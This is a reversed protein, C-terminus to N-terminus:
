LLEQIVNDNKAFVLKFNIEKSSSKNSNFDIMIVIKNM